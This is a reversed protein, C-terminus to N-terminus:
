TLARAAFEQQSITMKLLADDSDLFLFVAALTSVTGVGLGRTEVGGSGWGWRCWGEM